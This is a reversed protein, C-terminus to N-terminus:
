EDDSMDDGRGAGGMRRPLDFDPNRDGLPPSAELRIRRYEAHYVLSSSHSQQEPQPSVDPKFLQLIYPDGWPLPRCADSSYHRNRISLM